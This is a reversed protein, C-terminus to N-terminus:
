FANEMDRTLEEGKYYLMALTYAANMNGQDASKTYWNLAENFDAEVFDGHHYCLALNFQARAFGQAAAEKIHEFQEQNLTNEM